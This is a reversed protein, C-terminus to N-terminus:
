NSVIKATVRLYPQEPNNGFSLVSDNHIEYANGQGLRNNDLYVASRADPALQITWAGNEEMLWAQSRSVKLVFNGLYPTLDFDPDIGKEEDLRGILAKQKDVTQVNRDGIWLQLKTSVVIPKIFLIYFSNQVKIDQLTMDKDLAAGDSLIERVQGTVDLLPSAILVQFQDLNVAQGKGALSKLIGALIEAAPADSNTQFVQFQDPIIQTSFVIEGM